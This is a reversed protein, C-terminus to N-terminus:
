RRQVPIIAAQALAQRYAQVVLKEDFDRQMRARGARGMADRGDVGIEIMTRMAKALDVPDRLACLLGTIGDDVVHRCGPVDTAITARAMAAAEILTRPAGERYSPLVLIDCAAIDDRVDDLPGRYEIVGEAVWSEVDARPVATRNEVDLPGALRFRANPYALRVARAAQVYEGVGKDWLLRAVMLFIIEGQERGQRERPSFHVLDVGSGPVTAIRGPPALGLTEFLARDDPNQFFVLTAGSFAARYLLHVVRTIWNRRIFATGLGSVNPFAPIGLLRAALVGYVNPKITYGLYAVPKLERLLKVMRLFLMADAVPSTGMNEMPMSRWDCGLARLEDVHNDPPSVAVLEFGDDILARIIPRRFNVLNWSANACIVIRKKTERSSCPVPWGSGAEDKEKM